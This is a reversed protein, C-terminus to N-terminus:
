FVALWIWSSAASEDGAPHHEFSKNAIGDLGITDSHGPRITQHPKAVKRVSLASEDSLSDDSFVIYNM